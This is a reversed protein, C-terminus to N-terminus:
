RSSEQIIVWGLLVLPGIALILSGMTMILAATPPNPIVRRLRNQLPNLGLALMAAGLLGPMFPRSLLFLQYVVLGFAVFFFIQLFLQRPVAIKVRDPSPTEM